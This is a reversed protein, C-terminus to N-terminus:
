AAEAYGLAILRDATEKDVAAITAERLLTIRRVGKADLVVPECTTLLRIKVQSVKTKESGTM